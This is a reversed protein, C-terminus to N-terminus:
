YVSVLPKACIRSIKGNAAEEFEKFVARTAEEGPTRGMEEETSGGRGYMMSSGADSGMRGM